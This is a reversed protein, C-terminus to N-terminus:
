KEEWDMLTKQALDRCYFIWGMEDDDLTYISSACEYQVNDLVRAISKLSDILISFDKENM